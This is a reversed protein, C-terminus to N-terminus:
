DDGPYKLNIEMNGIFSISIRISIFPAIYTNMFWDFVYTKGFAYVDICLYLTFEFKLGLIMM